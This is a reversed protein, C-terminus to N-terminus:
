TLASASIRNITQYLIVDHVVVSREFEQDIEAFWFYASSGAADASALAGNEFAHEM